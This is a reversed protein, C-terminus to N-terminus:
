MLLLRQFTCHSDMTQKCINCWDELAYAHRPVPTPIYKLIFHFLCTEWVQRKANAITHKKRSTCPGSGQRVATGHSKRKAARRATPRSTIRSPSRKSKWRANRKSSGTIEGNAAAFTAFEDPDAFDAFFSIKASSPDSSDRLLPCTPRQFLQFM